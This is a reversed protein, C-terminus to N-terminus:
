PRVLPHVTATPRFSKRWFQDQSYRAFIDPPLITNRKRAEVRGGIDHLGRAGIRSDFESADYSVNEFDHQFPAEDIFAYITELTGSPDACLDDYEVLLVRDAYDGALAERIANLSYGVVGSGSSIMAVRDYVTGKTDHGYVGSPMFPSRQKLREFSDVIWALDRVCCIVRSEPFLKALAPLRAMWMRNSDFVIGDHKAYRVELSARLMGERYEDDIFVAGENAQGMTVELGYYVNAVPSSMGAAVKPNQKLIAALLTSGSRPLGSIFHLKSKM